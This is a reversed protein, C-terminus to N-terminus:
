LQDIAKHALRRARLDLARKGEETRATEHARLHKYAFEATV